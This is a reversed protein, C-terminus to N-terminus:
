HKSLRAELLTRQKQQAEALAQQTRMLETQMQVIDKQVAELEGNYAAIERHAKTVEMPLTERSLRVIENHRQRTQQAFDSDILRAAESPLFDRWSKSQPSKDGPSRPSPETMLQAIDYQTQALAKSAELYAERVSALEVLNTALSEQLNRIVGHSLKLREEATLPTLSPDETAAPTIPHPAQVVNRAAALEALVKRLEEQTQLLESQNNLLAKENLNVRYREAELAKIMQSREDERQQRMASLQQQLQTVETPNRFLLWIIAICLAMPLVVTLGHRGWFSGEKGTMPPAAGHEEAEKGEVPTAYESDLPITTDQDRLLRQSLMVQQVRIFERQSTILDNQERLLNQMLEVSEPRSGESENNM